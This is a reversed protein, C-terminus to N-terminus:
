QDTVRSIIQKPSTTKTLAWVNNGLSCIRSEPSMCDLDVIKLLRHKRM